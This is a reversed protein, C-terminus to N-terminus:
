IRGAAGFQLDENQQFVPWRPYRDTWMKAQEPTDVREVGLALPGTGDWLERWCCALALGRAWERRGM